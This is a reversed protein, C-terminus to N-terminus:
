PQSHLRNMMRGRGIGDRGFGDRGFWDFREALRGLGFWGNDMGTTIWDAQEQSIRGNEVLQALLAKIGTQRAAKTADEAAARVDSLPVDAEEALDALTKGGWLADDLEDPTMGLVEAAADMGAQRVDDRMQGFPIRAQTDSESQASAPTAWMLSGTVAIVAALLLSMAVTSIKMNFRM